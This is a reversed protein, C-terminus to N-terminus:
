HGAALDDGCPNWVGNTLYGHRVMLAGKDHGTLKISPTVTITKDQNEVVTHQSMVGAGAGPLYIWWLGDSDKWYCIEQDTFGKPPFKESDPLRLAKQSM